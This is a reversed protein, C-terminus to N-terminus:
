RRSPWLGTQRQSRPLLNLNDTRLIVNGGNVPADVALLGETARLSVTGTGADISGGITLDGSNRIRVRGGGNTIGLM